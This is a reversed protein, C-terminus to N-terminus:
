SKKAKELTASLEDSLRGANLDVCRRQIESALDFLRSVFALATEEEGQVASLGDCHWVNAMPGVSGQKVSATAEPRRTTQKTIAAMALDHLRETPTLKHQSQETM